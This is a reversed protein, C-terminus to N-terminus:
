PKETGGLVFGSWWFWELLTRGKLKSKLKM